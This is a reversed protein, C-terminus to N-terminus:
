IIFYHLLYRPIGSNKRYLKLFKPYFEAYSQCVDESPEVFGYRAQLYRKTLDEVNLEGGLYRDLKPAFQTAYEMETQQKVRRCGLIRFKSLYFRYLGILQERPSHNQMIKNMRRRRALRRFLPILVVLLVLLVLLSLLTTILRNQRTSLLNADELNEESNGSLSTNDDEEDSADTEGSGNEEEKEEENEEDTQQNEDSAQHNMESNPLSYLDAVGTYEFVEYSLYRTLLNIDLTPPNLPRIIAFWCLMSLGIAILSVIAGIVSFRLFKPNVTSSNMANHRYQLLLFQAILAGVFLVTCWTHVRFELFTLGANLGIGLLFLVATGIRTRTLFFSIGAILPACIYYIYVSTPSDEYDQIDIGNGSMVAFFVVAIVVAGAAFGIRTWKNYAGFYCYALTVACFLFSIYFGDRITDPIYFGEAFNIVLSTSVLLCFVSELAHYKWYERM